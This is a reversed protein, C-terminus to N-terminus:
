AKPKLLEALVWAVAAVAAVGVENQITHVVLADWVYVGSFEQFSLRQLASAVGNRHNDGFVSAVMLPVFVWVSAGIFAAWIALRTTGIRKEMKAVAPLALIWLGGAVALAVILALYMWLLSPLADVADYVANM